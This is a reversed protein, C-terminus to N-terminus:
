KTVNRKYGRMIIVGSAAPLFDYLTTTRIKTRSSIIKPPSMTQMILVREAVVNQSQIGGGRGVGQRAIPESFFWREVHPARERQYVPIVLVFRSVDMQVLRQEPTM